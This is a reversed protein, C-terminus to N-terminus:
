NVPLPILSTQVSISHIEYSMGGTRAHRGGSISPRADGSNSPRSVTASESFNYRVTLKHDRTINWDIKALFKNNFENDGGWNEYRGTEYGFKDKLLQSFAPPGIGSGQTSM